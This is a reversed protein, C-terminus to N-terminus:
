RENALAVKILEIIVEISSKLYVDYFALKKSRKGGAKYVPFVVQRFFGAPLVIGAWTSSFSNILITAVKRLVTKSIMSARASSAPSTPHVNRISTANGVCGLAGMWELWM